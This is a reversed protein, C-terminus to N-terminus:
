GEAPGPLTILRVRDSSCAAEFDVEIELLAGPDDARVTEVGVARNRGQAKATYLTMDAWTVAREWHMLHGLPPLPFNAFGISVSVRVPGGATEIPLEGVAQLIRSALVPLPTGSAASSEAPVFILFEEGGWRVVLDQARVSASLRRAVEALVVDGVAHGYADNIRKFHDIDVMLLSGAFTERAYQDMLALFHRRNALDTLPDRESQVRLLAQSDKLLRNASRVRLLMVGALLLSLGLLAVAAIGVRQVLVQNTLQQEKIQAERKLLALAREKGESDYKARLEQLSAERNRAQVAETLRREERFVRLAERPQGAAAWAESLESLENIRISLDSMGRRLDDIRSLSTRAEDFRHLRIYGIALNQRLVRETRRDKYRMLAPLAQEGLHVADRLNGSNLYADTLNAQILAIFHPANAQTALYLAEEFERFEHETDRNRAHFMAENVKIRISGLSDGQIALLAQAFWGRAVEAQGQEQLILGMQSQSLATLYPDRGAQALALAERQVSEASAFAGSGEHMRFIIQLAFWLARFDCDPGTQMLSPTLTGPGASAPDSGEDAGRASREPRDLPRLVCSPGLADRARLAFDEAAPIDGEREAIEARILSVRAEQRPHSTLLAALDRAAATDGAATLLRAKGFLLQAEHVALAPDQELRELRQRALEPRDYAQRLLAQLQVDLDPDIAPPTAKVPRASSGTLAIAPAQALCVGALLIARLFRGARM